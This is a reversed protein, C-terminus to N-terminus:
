GVYFLIELSVWNFAATVSWRTQVAGGSTVDIRMNKGAGKCPFMLTCNPRYGSPLTFITSPSAVTTVGDDYRALGRIMVVGDMKNYRVPGWSGSTAYNVWLGAFTPSSWNNTTHVIDDATLDGTITTAKLTAM